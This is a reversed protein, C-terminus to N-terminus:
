VGPQVPDDYEDKQEFSLYVDSEGLNRVFALLYQIGALGLGIPAALYILYLPVELVPSVTGLAHVTGIYRLSFYTLAFMLGATCLTILLMLAKRAGLPLQDYLATMRIHRGRSAAYGAGIFTVLIIAFQSIEQAYALSEGTATRWVVNAITLTAMVLVGGALLWEEITQIVRFLRGSVPGGAVDGTSSM